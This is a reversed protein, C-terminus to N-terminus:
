DTWVNSNCGSLVLGALCELATCMTCCCYAHALLAVGHVGVFYLDICEVSAASLWASVAAVRSILDIHWNQAWTRFCSM